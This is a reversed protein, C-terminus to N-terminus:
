AAMTPSRPAPRVARWLLWALLWLPSLLVLLLVGVVVVPLAVSLLVIPVLAVLTLLVSGFAVMLVVLLVVALGIVLGVKHLPELAALNLDTVLSEGNVSLQLPATSLGHILTLAGWLALLCLALVVWLSTRRWRTARPAGLALPPAASDANM